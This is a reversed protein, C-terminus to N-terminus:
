ICLFKWKGQVIFPNSNEQTGYTGNAKCIFSTGVMSVTVPRLELVASQNGVSTVLTETGDNHHWIWEITSRFADIDTTCTLSVNNGVTFNQSGSITM